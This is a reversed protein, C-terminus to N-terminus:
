SNRREILLKCVTILLLCFLLIIPIYPNWVNTIIGIAVAAITVPLAVYVWAFRGKKNKSSMYQANQAIMSEAHLSLGSLIFLSLWGADLIWALGNSFNENFYQSVLLVIQPSLILIIVGLVILIVYRKRNKDYEMRFQKILSDDFLLPIKGIEPYRKPQFVHWVLLAIGLAMIIWYISMALQRDAPVCGFLNALVILSVGIAIRKASQRKYLLFGDIMERSVYYGAENGPDQTAEEKLLYDLTVGFLNSIQLLKETEPTGRDSEWKSVAQRSVDLHQALEEQSYGQEKRLVKLKEGFTMGNEGKEAM